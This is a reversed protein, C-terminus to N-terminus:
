GGEGAPAAGPQRVPIALHHRLATIFKQMQDGIQHIDAKLSAVVLLVSGEGAEMLVVAEQDTDILVQNTHSPRDKHLVRGVGKVISALASFAAALPETEEESLGAAATALGDASLLLCGTIGPVSEHLRELQALVAPPAPLQATLPLTPSTV